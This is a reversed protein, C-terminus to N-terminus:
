PPLQSFMRCGGNAYSFPYQDAHAEDVGTWYDRECKAINHERFYICNTCHRDEELATSIIKMLANKRGYTIEKKFLNYLGFCASCSDYSHRRMKILYIQGLFKKKCFKCITM